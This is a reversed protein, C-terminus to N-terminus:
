DLDNINLHKNGGTAVKKRVVAKASNPAKGSKYDWYGKNYNYKAVESIKQKYYDQIQGFAEEGKLAYWAMKVLTKPDNLAKAIYRTGTSDSDLIFSALQNKDDDSLDLSSDGLDISDNNQIADVIVNEFERSQQAQQEM